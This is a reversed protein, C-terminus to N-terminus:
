QGLLTKSTSGLKNQSTPGLDDLGSGGTLVTSTRGRDLQAQQAQADADAQRAVANPDVPPPASPKSIGLLGNFFDGVFSM